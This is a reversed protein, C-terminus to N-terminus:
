QIHQHFSKRSAVREKDTTDFWILVLSRQYTFRNQYGGSVGGEWGNPGSFSIEDLDKYM